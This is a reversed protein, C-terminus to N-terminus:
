ARCPAGGLDQRTDREHSPPTSSVPDDSSAMKPWGPVLVLFIFVTSFLHHTGAVAPLMQMYM